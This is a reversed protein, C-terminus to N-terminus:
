LGEKGCANRALEDRIKVMDKSTDGLENIKKTYETKLQELEVMRAPSIPLENQNHAVSSIESLGKGLEKIQKELEQSHIQLQTLSM